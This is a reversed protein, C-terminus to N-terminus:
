SDLEESEDESSSEEDTNAINKLKEIGEWLTEQNEEVVKNLDRSRKLHKEKERPLLKKNKEISKLELNVKKKSSRLYRPM